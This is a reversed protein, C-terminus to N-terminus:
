ANNSILGPSSITISECKTCVFAKVILGNHPVPSNPNSPKSVLIFDDGEPNIIPRVSDIAGCHVCNTM